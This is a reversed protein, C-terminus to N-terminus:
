GLELWALSALCVSSLSFVSILGRIFFYSWSLGWELGKQWLGALDIVIHFLIFSFNCNFNCFNLYSTSNSTSSTPITILQLQFQIVQLQLLQLQLISSTSDLSSPLQLHHQLKLLLSVHMAAVFNWKQGRSLNWNMVSTVLLWNRRTTRPSLM